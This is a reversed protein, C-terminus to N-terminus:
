RLYVMEDALEPISKIVNQGKIKDMEFTYNVMHDHIEDGLYSM